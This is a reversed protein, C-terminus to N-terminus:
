EHVGGNQRWVSLMLLGAKRSPAVGHCLIFRLAIMWSLAHEVGVLFIM